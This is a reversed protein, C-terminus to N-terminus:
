ASRTVFANLASFLARQEEALGIFVQQRPKPTDEFIALQRSIIGHGVTAARRSRYAATEVISGM